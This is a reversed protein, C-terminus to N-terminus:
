DKEWLGSEYAIWGIGLAVLAMYFDSKRCEESDRPECFNDIFGNRDAQFAELPLSLSKYSNNEEFGINLSYSVSKKSNPDFDFQASILFEPTEDYFDAAV